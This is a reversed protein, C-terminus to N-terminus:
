PTKGKRTGQRVLLYSLFLGFLGFFLILNDPATVFPGLVPGLAAKFAETFGSVGALVRGLLGGAFLGLLPLLSHRLSLGLGAAPADAAPAQSLDTKEM